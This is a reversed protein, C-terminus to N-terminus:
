TGYNKIIAKYKLAISCYWEFADNWTEPTKIDNKHQALIRCDKSAERWLLKCGLEDEIETRNEKYREFLSKDDSFYISAGILKKQSNTNLSISITSSGVSMDYWHHPHAKRKSFNMSFDQRSFAYDVFALWYEQQLRKTDSLGEVAKMNKAWDNPREVVNFKPAPLSNDIMWLEIELLFFGINEDTHKNLWEIAQKHEDRARKVIWIIVDADKGAAYTIIKGLHDHNTDELQNEIIVKRDTGGETAFIDVSFAGIPSELGELSLNIGITESLLALNEEQALWKSFDYAEHPWITRLDSIRKITGLNAM